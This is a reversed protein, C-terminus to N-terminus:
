RQYIFLNIEIGLKLKNVDIKCDQSPRNLSLIEQSDKAPQSTAAFLNIKPM